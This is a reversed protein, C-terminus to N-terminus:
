NQLGSARSHLGGISAPKEVIHVEHKGPMENIRQRAPLEHLLRNRHHPTEKTFIGDRELRAGIKTLISEVEGKCGDRFVIGDKRRRSVSDTQREKHHFCM